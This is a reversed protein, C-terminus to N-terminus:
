ALVGYEIRSLVTEVAKIGQNTDLLSKPKVGGLALNVRNLWMSFKESTGFVDMGYDYLLTIEILKESQSSSLKKREKKLRDISRISIHLMEAWEQISFPMFDQANKLSKYPLGNRTAMILRYFNRDDDIIKPSHIKGLNESVYETPMDSVMKKAASDSDLDSVSGEVDTGGFGDPFLIKIILTGRELKTSDPKVSYKM